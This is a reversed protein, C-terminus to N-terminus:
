ECLSVLLARESDTFTMRTGQAKMWAMRQAPQEPSAANLLHPYYKGVFFPNLKPILNALNAAGADAHLTIEFNFKPIADSNAVDRSTRMARLVSFSKFGEFLEEVVRQCTMQGSDIHEKQFKRLMMELARPGFNDYRTNRELFEYPNKEPCLRRYVLKTVYLRKADEINTARTGSSKQHTVAAFKNSYVSSHELGDLIQREVESLLGKKKKERLVRLRKKRAGRTEARFEARRDVIRGDALTIPREDRLLWVLFRKLVRREDGLLIM